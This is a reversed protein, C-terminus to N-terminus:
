AAQHHFRHLLRLLGPQDGRLEAHVTQGGAAQGGCGPHQVNRHQLLHVPDVAAHGRQRGPHVPLVQHLRLASEPRGLHRDALVHAGARNGLLRLVPHFRAFHLRGAHGDRPPPFPRLIRKSAGQHYLRSYFLSLTTLLTTLFVFPVSIGDVGMQYFVNLSPIWSATEKFQIGGQAGDYSLWLAVSLILPLVSLLTATWKIEKEKESPIFLVVIAGLLPVFTIITLLGPLNM